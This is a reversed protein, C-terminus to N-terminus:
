LVILSYVNNHNVIIDDIFIFTAVLFVADDDYPIDV